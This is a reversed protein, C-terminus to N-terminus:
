GAPISAEVVEKKKNKSGKPRGRGRKVLGLRAAEAERELTKKNKSGKPRGPGRSPKDSKGSAKEEAERLLTAKNKSGKPRGKKKPAPPIEGSGESDQNEGQVGKSGAGKNKNLRRKEIDEDTVTPRRAFAVKRTLLNQEGDAFELELKDGNRSVSSPSHLRFAEYFDKAQRVPIEPVIDLKFVEAKQCRLEYFLNLPSKRFVEALPDQRIFYQRTTGDESVTIEEYEDSRDASPESQALM